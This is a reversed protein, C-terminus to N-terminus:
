VRVDSGASAHMAAQLRTKAGLKKLINQVHVKATNRSIFLRKAIEANSLGTALLELVEEERPTLPTRTPGPLARPFRSRAVAVDNARKMLLVVTPVVADDSPIFDLIRPALRYALVFSDEFSASITARVLGVVDAKSAQDAETRSILYAFQTFFRAEIAKTRRAALHACRDVFSRDGIAAGALALVALYEGQAAPVPIEDAFDL